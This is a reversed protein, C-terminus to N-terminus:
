GCAQLLVAGDAHAFAAWRSPISSCDHEGKGTTLSITRRVIARQEENMFPHLFDYCHAIFENQSPELIDQRFETTPLVAEIDKAVKKAITTLAAAAKAAAPAITPQGYYDIVCRFAEYQLAGIVTFGYNTHFQDEPLNAFGTVNGAALEDFIPGVPTQRFGDTRNGPGFVQNACHPTCSASTTGGTLTQIMLDRISDMIRKGVRTSQLRRRLDPIDEPGFFIRPHLGAPPPPRLRSWDVASFDYELTPSASFVRDLMERPYGFTRSSPYVAVVLSGGRVGSSTSNLRLVYNGPERFTATTALARGATKRQSPSVRDM